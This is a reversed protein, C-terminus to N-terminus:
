RKQSDGRVASVVGKITWFANAMQEYLGPRAVEMGAIVGAKIASGVATSGVRVTKDHKSCAGVRNEGVLSVWHGPKGCVICAARKGSM